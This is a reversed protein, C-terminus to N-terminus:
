VELDINIVSFILAAVLVSALSSVSIVPEDSRKHEALKRICGLVVPSGLVVPVPTTGRWVGDGALLLDQCHWRCPALKALILSIYSSMIMSSQLIWLELSDSLGHLAHCCQLGQLSARFDWYKFSYFHLVLQFPSGLINPVVLFTAIMFHLLGFFFSINEASSLNRSNTYNLWLDWIDSMSHCSKTNTRSPKLRAKTQDDRSIGKYERKSHLHQFQAM